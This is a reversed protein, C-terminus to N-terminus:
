AAERGSAAGLAGRYVRLYADTMAMGSWVHRARGALEAHSIGGYLAAERGARVLALAEAPSQVCRGGVLALM